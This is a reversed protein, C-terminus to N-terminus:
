ANPKLQETNQSTQSAEKAPLLLQVQAYKLAEDDSEKQEQPYFSRWKTKSYYIYLAVHFDGSEVLETCKLYHKLRGKKITQLFDTNKKFLNYLTSESVGLEKAIDKMSMGIRILNGLLEIDEDSPVYEPAGTENLMEKKMQRNKTM